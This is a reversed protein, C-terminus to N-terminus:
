CGDHGDWHGVKQGFLVYHPKAEDFLYFRLWDDLIIALLSIPIWLLSYILSIQGLFNFRMNSYNWVNLGLGLNVVLGTLLELATIISASILMQWVLDLSWACHDNLRGIILFCVGGLIGMSWHSRSRYLVEITIYTAFGIYFLFITKARKSYKM